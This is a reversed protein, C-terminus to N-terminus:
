LPFNEYTIPNVELSPINALAIITSVMNKFVYDNNVSIKGEGIL